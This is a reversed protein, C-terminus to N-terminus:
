RGKNNQSLTAHLRLVTIQLAEKMDHTFDSSLSHMIHRMEQMTQLITQGAPVTVIENRQCAACIYDNRNMGALEAKRDIQEALEPTMRLSISRSKRKEGKKEYIRRKLSM